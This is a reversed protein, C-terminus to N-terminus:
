QSRTKEIAALDALAKADGRGARAQLEATIAQKAKEVAMLQQYSIRPSNQAAQLAIVGGAYDNARVASLASQVLANPDPNTAPAPNPQTTAPPPQPSTVATPFAKELESVESTVDAKKKCGAALLLALLCLPLGHKIVFTLISDIM